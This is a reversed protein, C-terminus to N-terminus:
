SLRLIMQVISPVLMNLMFIMALIIIVILMGIAYRELMM